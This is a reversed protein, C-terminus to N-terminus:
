PKRMNRAMSRFMDMSTDTRRREAAEDVKPATPQAGDSTIELSQALSADRMGMSSVEVIRELEEPQGATKPFTRRIKKAQRMYEVNGMTRADDMDLFFAELNQSPAPKVVPPAPVQEEQSKKSGFFGKIFGVM